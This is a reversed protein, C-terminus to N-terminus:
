DIDVSVVLSLLLINPFLDKNHGLGIRHNSEKTPTIVKRNTYANSEKVYTADILCVIYYKGHLLDIYISSYLWFICGLKRCWFSIPEMTNM